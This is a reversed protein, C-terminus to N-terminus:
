RRWSVQVQESRLTVAPDIRMAKRAPILTAALALLAAVAPVIVPDHAGMGFLLSPLLRSVRLAIALGALGGIAVLRIGERAILRLADTTSEPNDPTM